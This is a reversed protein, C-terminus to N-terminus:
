KSAVQKLLTFPSVRIEVSSYLTVLCRVLSALGRSIPRVPLKSARISIDRLMQAPISCLATPLEPEPPRALTRISPPPRLQLAGRDRLWAFPCHRSEFLWSEYTTARPSFRRLRVSEDERSVARFM